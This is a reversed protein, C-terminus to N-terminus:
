PGRPHGMAYGLWRPSFSSTPDPRHPVDQMTWLQVDIGPPCGDYAEATTEPGAVVLSLDFAPGAVPAISGTCGNVRAWTAVTEHATPVNPNPPNNQLDGFYGIVEDATGHIQVVTVHKTPLCGNPDKTAQGAVSVVATVDESGDCGMRYAMHAGQSGGFVIVRSADVRHKAKVDHIIATLWSQDWHPWSTKGTHWAAAGTSDRNGSPAVLIFGRQDALRELEYYDVLEAGSGGYGHLAIVLPWDVGGDDGAPLRASYGRASLLEAESPPTDPPVFPMPTPIPPENCASLALWVVSCTAALRNRM